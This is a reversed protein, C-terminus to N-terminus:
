KNQLIDKPDLLGVNNHPQDKYTIFSFKNGNVGYTETDFYINKM